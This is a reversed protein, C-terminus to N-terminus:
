IFLYITKFHIKKRVIETKHRSHRFHFPPILYLADEIPKQMEKQLETHILVLLRKSQYKNM